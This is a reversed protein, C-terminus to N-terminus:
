GVRQGTCEVGRGLDNHDFRTSCFRLLLLLITPRRVKISPTQSILLHVVVFFHKSHSLEVLDSVEVCVADWSTPNSGPRADAHHNNTIMATCIPTLLIPCSSARCSFFYSTPPAMSPMLSKHPRVGFYIQKPCVSLSINKNGSVDTYRFLISKTLSAALHPGPDVLSIDSPMWRWASKHVRGHEALKCYHQM